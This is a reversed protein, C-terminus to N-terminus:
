PSVSAPARGRKPPPRENVGGKIEAEFMRDILRRLMDSRSPLPDAERRRLADLREFHRPSLRFNMPKTDKTMDFGYSVFEHLALRM